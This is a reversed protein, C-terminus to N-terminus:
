DWILATSSISISAPTVERPSRSLFRSRGRRLNRKLAQVLKTTSIQVWVTAGPITHRLYEKAVDVMLGAAQMAQDLMNKLIDQLRDRMQEQSQLQELHANDQEMTTEKYTQKQKGIIRHTTKITYDSQRNQAVKMM